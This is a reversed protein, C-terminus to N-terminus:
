AAAAESVQRVADEILDFAVPGTREAEIAQARPASALAVDTARTDSADHAPRSDAVVFHGLFEVNGASGTIPSPTLEVLPLGLEDAHAAVEGLVRRWIAPDDIVGRGRSAEQRGAEFQPKILLVLSAGPTVLAALSPLVKTLSIFSLDGVVLEVPGAPAFDDVRLSRVDTQERVIVRPDDRLREHLQHTGVDVAYVQTAGAQLLCDTFGGTSSGADLVRLGRPDVDFAELARELKAGARSVWKPPPSDLRIDEAPSVQRAPKAAVSGSVLVNGSEILRQAAERSPALGRRMLEVDLRRRAAM